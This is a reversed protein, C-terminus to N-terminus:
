NAVVTLGEATSRMRPKRPKDVAWEPVTPGLPGFGGMPMIAGVFLDSLAHDRFRVIVPSGETAGIFLSLAPRAGLRELDPHLIAGADSVRDILSPDVPPTESCWSTTHERLVRRWDPYSGDILSSPWIKLWGDGLTTSPDFGFEDALVVFRESIAMRRGGLPKTVEKQLNRRVEGPLRSVILSKRGPDIWGLPDHIAAMAHGDTGVLVVGCEPHREIHVGNLYFRVDEKAAFLNAALLMRPNVNALVKM